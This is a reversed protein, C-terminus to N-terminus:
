RLGSNSIKKLIYQVSANNGNKHKWPRLAKILTCRAVLYEDKDLGIVEFSDVRCNKPRTTYCKCKNNGDLMPCYTGMAFESFMECCAGCADCEWKSGM